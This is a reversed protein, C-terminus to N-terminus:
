GEEEVDQVPKEASESIESLDPPRVNMDDLLPGIGLTLDQREHAFVSRYRDLTFSAYEQWHPM